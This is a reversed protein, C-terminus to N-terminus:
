AQCKQKCTATTSKINQPLGTGATKVFSDTYFRDIRPLSSIQRHGQLIVEERKLFSRRMHPLFPFNQCSYVLFGSKKFNLSSIPPEIKITHKGGAFLHIAVSKLRASETRAVNRATKYILYNCWETCSFLEIFM